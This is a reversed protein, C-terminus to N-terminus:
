KQLHGNDALEVSDKVSVLLPFREEKVCSAPRATVAHMKPVKYREHERLEDEGQQVLPRGERTM